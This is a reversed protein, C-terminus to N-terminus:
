VPTENEVERVILSNADNSLIEVVKDKEIFKNQSKGIYIREEIKIKGVPRLKTVAVGKLGVMEKYNSDMIEKEPINTKVPQDLILKNFIPIRPFLSMLIFILIASSLISIITILINRNFLDWQWQWEPVIFDQQSLILSLAICIIGSIGTIGFGPIVFIEIILLTIGLLFLILEFSGLTGLLQGGVFIIAFSIIGIAGLLGFGPSTLALYLTVLGVTMLIGLFTTSTLFSVIRDPINQEIYITNSEEVGLEDLLKGFDSYTGKSVGYYEMEKATLTLLKGEPCIIKGKEGENLDQKTKLVPKNNIVVEHLEIDKDVMALAVEKPYGNKEALAAMQVRVASVTKEEAAQAGEPSMYVPAAAGISTGEAMYITKCSLTILAGASWSVGLSEPDAPIYAVTNSEVAGILTAIQLASDVRGGFTNIKFLIDSNNKKAEEIGNRIFVTLSPEINGEIPIIYLNRDQSILNSSLILFIIILYKKM